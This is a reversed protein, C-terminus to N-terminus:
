DGLFDELDKAASLRETQALRRHLTELVDRVIRTQSRDRARIDRYAAVVQALDAEDRVMADFKEREMADHKERKSVM